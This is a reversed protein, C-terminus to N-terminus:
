TIEFTFDIGSSFVGDQQPFNDRRRGVYVAADVSPSQALLNNTTFLAEARDLLNELQAPTHGQQPDGWVDIQVMVRSRTTGGAPTDYVIHYTAVPLRATALNSRTVLNSSSRGTVSQVQSDADYLAKLGQRLAYSDSM